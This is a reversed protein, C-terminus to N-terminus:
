CRASLPLNPIDLEADHTTSYMISGNPNRIAIPNLAIRKNIVPYEISVFTSTTGTDALLGPQSPPIRPM